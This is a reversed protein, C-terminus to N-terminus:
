FQANLGLSLQRGNEYYSRLGGSDPGFTYWYTHSDFLNQVEFSAQLYDTVNYKVSLDVFEYPQEYPNNNFDEYDELFESQYNYSVYADWGWKSWYLEGNFLLEPTEFFPLSYGEPHWSMGTEAESEQYTMNVGVGFGDFPGPLWHFTQRASLEVGWISASEGNSAQSLAFGEAIPNPGLDIDGAIEDLNVDPSTGGRIVSSSGRITFDQIDKYFLAVSYAGTRGNYWELSADFNTTEAPELGPNGVSGGTLEWQLPDAIRDGTAEDIPNYSLELPRTAREISPRAYSTWVAGRAIFGNEFFHNVHVSPLVQTYETESVNRRYPTEALGADFLAEQVATEVYSDVEYSVREVRVGPIVQTAGFWMEGMVYGAITDENFTFQEESDYDVNTFDAGFAAIMKDTDLTQGLRYDGTYRGGFMSQVDDGFFPAFDAYTNASDFPGDDFAPEAEFRERESQVLKAGFRVNRLWDSNFEYTFDVNGQILDESVGSLYSGVGDYLYTSPDQVAAHGAQNLNFVPFRPDAYSISVGENGLWPQGGAIRGVRTEFEAEYGYDIEDESTAYSLDYEVTLAGFQSEGGFNISTATGLNREANWARELRFEQPDWVGSRGCLSYNSSCDRDADTLMGDGDTDAIQNLTYDGVWNGSDSYGYIRGLADDHGVVRWTDPHAFASSDLDVQRFRDSIRDPRNRMFLIDYSEDEVYENYSGRLHIEHNGQRWDISANFGQREVETDGKALEFGPVQFNAYDWGDVGSRSNQYWHYPQHDGNDGVNEYQSRNLDYFATVFIGLNDTIQDAYSGSVSYSNRGDYKDQQRGELSVGFHRGDFDFATPTEIDITGGIADGDMDPQLTKRVTIREIGEPSLFSLRVGRFFNDGPSGTGGLSVGNMSYNNYETSLGRVTIRDGEGTGQNRVANLGPLRALAETLNANPLNGMDDARLVDSVFSNERKDTLAASAAAAYGTVVIVDSGDLAIDESVVGEAPAMVTIEGAGEGVSTVSVTYSGAELGTFVYRGRTDTIVRQGDELRVNAGSVPQGDTNRVVGTIDGALAPTTAVALVLASVSVGLAAKNLNGM